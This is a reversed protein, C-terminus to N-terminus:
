KEEERNSFAQKLETIIEPITKILHEFPNKGNVSLMQVKSDDVILFGVPSISVGSSAGGAFPYSSEESQGYEGGGSLFGFSVKSIPIITSGDTSIIPDGIITNVDVMEKIEAMATQMINEIPHM